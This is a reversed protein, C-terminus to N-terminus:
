RRAGEGRRVGGRVGPQEAGAAAARPVAREVAARVSRGRGLARRPGASEQQDPGAAVPGARRRSHLRRRHPARSSRLRRGSPPRAHRRGGGPGAQHRPDQPPGRPHRGSGPRLEEDLDDAQSPFLAVLTDHAALAIAAEVSTGLPAAPLGTYGQFGGAVANMADFVATHVIAMARSARGPGLQEGFVRGGPVSPTHDVGSTDIAVENWHRVREMVGAGRRPRRRRLDRVNARAGFRSGFADELGGPFGQAVARVPLGLALMGLLFTRRSEM